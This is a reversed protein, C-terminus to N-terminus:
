DKEPLEPTRFVCRPKGDSEGYLYFRVRAPRAADTTDVEVMGLNLKGYPNSTAEGVGRLLEIRGVLGHGADVSRTLRVAAECAITEMASTRHAIPSSVFQYLTPARDKWRIAQACGIHIDGSLVIIPCEPRRQQYHHILHLLRNRDALHPGTSWRDSLDDGNPTVRDVIAALGGPLHIPPVSLVLFRVRKSECREFFSRLRQEQAESYVRGAEDATRNSRLDMVYVDADGYQIPYDFDDPLQEGRAFVRSGQSDFYAERAGALVRKWAPEVHQPDSGWNDFIEHDDWMPYTPFRAHIAQWSRASWYERYRRQYLSRIEEASCEALRQRGPPAVTRFYSERLLSRSPPYDAYMQDGATIVFKANHRDLCEDAAHLMALSVPDLTGDDRFPQNCSMLGFAFRQPSAPEPATEFRGEGVVSGDATREVRFRYATAPRLGGSGPAAEPLGVSATYDTAAPLDIEAQVAPAASAPAVQWILARLRGPARSRMWLRVSCSTVAGIAVMDGLSEM